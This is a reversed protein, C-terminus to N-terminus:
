PLRIYLPLTVIDRATSLYLLQLQWKGHVAAIRLIALRLSARNGVLRSAASPAMVFANHMIHKPLELYTVYSLTDVLTILSFAKSYDAINSSIRREIESPSNYPEAPLVRLLSLRLLLLLLLLTPLHKKKSRCFAGVARQPCSSGM